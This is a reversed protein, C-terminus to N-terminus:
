YICKQVIGKKTEIKIKDGNKLVQTAIKTGVLCPVKLERSVIAAHCTIGGTDTIIAKAKRIATIYEPATMAAVLIKGAPFKNIDQANKIVYVQGVLPKAAAYVVLGKFENQISKVEQWFTKYIKKAKDQYLCEKTNQGFHVVFPNQSRKKLLRVLAPYPSVTVEAPWAYDFIRPSLNARRATEKVFLDLYHLYQFIYKKRQDQWWICESLGESIKKILGKNKLKSCIKKKHSQAAKLHNQLRRLADKPKVGKAQMECIRRAFFDTPLVKTRYYSNELWFYKEQHKKLLSKYNKSRYRALLKLLDREEEQYFSLRTPASLLSLNRIKEEESLKEQALTRRLVPEGGYAGMEPIIGPEWLLRVLQNFALWQKKLNINSLSKLYDENIKRCFELINFLNQRWIKRFHEIKKTLIVKKFVRMGVAELKDKECLFLMNDRYFILYDEPWLYKHIKKPSWQHISSWHYVTLFRGPIPGWRFHKKNLRIM